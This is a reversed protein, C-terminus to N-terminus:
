SLMSGVRTPIFRTGTWFNALAQLAGWVRPSSGYVLALLVVALAHEGCAHPHVTSSRRAAGSVSISGVRTPIFRGELGEGAQVQYAGWVRPSSGGISTIDILADAHEGCAHPHVSSTLKAAIICRMSGVRTPIFRSPRVAHNHHAFAGWVRPSSGGPPNTSVIHPLHEGCAHPHVAHLEAGGPSCAISGVRTPIFRTLFVYKLVRDLAGWVRPSSGAPGQGAPPLYLHEGCAHPHVPQWCCGDPSM